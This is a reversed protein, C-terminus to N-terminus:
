KLVLMAMGIKAARSAWKAWAAEPHLYRWGDLVAPALLLAGVVPEPMGKGDDYSVAIGLTDRADPGFEGFAATAYIASTALNFGLIGKLFPSSEHRLDPHATLIWESGVHQVWFGASTIIFEQKPTVTEHDIRFFPIPGYRLPKISPHADFIAGFMIHGCEHAVLGTVAGGLLKVTRMVGSQAGTAAQAFATSGILSACLVVVAIRARTM